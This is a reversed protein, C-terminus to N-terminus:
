IQLGPLFHKPNEEQCLLSSLASTVQQDIAIRPPLHQVNFSPRQQERPPWSLNYLQLLSKESSAM